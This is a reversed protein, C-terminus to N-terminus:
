KVGKKIFEILDPNDLFVETMGNALATVIKEEEEHDIYHKLGYSNVVGHLIEHIVTNVVEIKPTTVDVAIEGKFHDCYGLDHSSRDERSQTWPKIKYTNYGIKLKTPLKMM